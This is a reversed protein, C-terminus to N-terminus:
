NAPLKPPLQDTRILNFTGDGQDVAEYESVAQIFEVCAACIPGERDDDQTAVATCGAEVDLGCRVCTM